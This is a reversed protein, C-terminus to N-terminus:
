KPNPGETVQVLDHPRIWKAFAAQVQQPTLKVYVRAAVAPENLPLENSTRSILGEAISDVSSESLPIQQLLLVKAQNLMEESVMSTQMAKLDREVIERAGLVNHPDCGYSVVYFAGTPDADLTSSVSYVLGTNERLDRSLRSAYLAGGLV